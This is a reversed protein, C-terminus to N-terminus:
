VKASVTSVILVRKRGTLDCGAHISNADWDRQRFLNAIEDAREHPTELFVFGGPRILSGANEAIERYFFLPDGQPAFLAMSPENRVVEEDAETADMLYPPNSILFDAKQAGLQSAIPACVQNAEVPLVRLKEAWNEGLISRANECAIATAAESAESAWMKLAGFRTLLEISLIGSGLGIELGLCPAAVQARLVTMANELLIETEPRPVLVAPTIHYINEGFAQYGFVHQLTKGESRAVAYEIMKEGAKDPYRDEGRTYLETRRIEKGMTHRYAAAVILESEVRVLDKQVISHNRSILEAALRLAARFDTPLERFLAGM